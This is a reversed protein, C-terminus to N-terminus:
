HGLKATSTLSLPPTAGNLVRAGVVPPLTGIGDSVAAPAVTLAIQEQRAIKRNTAHVMLVSCARITRPHQTRNFTWFVNHSTGGVLVELALLPIPMLVDIIPRAAASVTATQGL